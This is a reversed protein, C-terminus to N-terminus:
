PRHWSSVQAESDRRGMCPLEPRNAQVNENLINSLKLIPLSCAKAFAVALTPAENSGPVSVPLQEAPCQQMAEAPREPLQAAGATACGTNLWGYLLGHTSCAIPCFM